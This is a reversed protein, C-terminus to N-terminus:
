LWLILKYNVVFLRMRDLGGVWEIDGLSKEEAPEHKGQTKALYDAVLKRREAGLLNKIQQLSDDIPPLLAGPGTAPGPSASALTAM